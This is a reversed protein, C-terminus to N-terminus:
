EMIKLNENEFFFVPENEKYKKNNIKIDEWLISDMINGNEYFSINNYIKIDGINTKIITDKIFNLSEIKGSKYFRLSGCEIEGISTKIKERGKFSGYFIQGNKYFRIDYFFEFKGYGTDLIVPESLTGEKFKNDEYFNYENGDDIKLKGYKTNVILM